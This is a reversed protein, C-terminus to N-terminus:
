TGSIGHADHHAHMCAHVWPKLTGRSVPTLAIVFVASPVVM